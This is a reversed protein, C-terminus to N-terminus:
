RGAALVGTAQRISDFIPGTFLFFLATFVSTV